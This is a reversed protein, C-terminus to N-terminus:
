ASISLAEEIYGARTCTYAYAFLMASDYSGTALAYRYCIVAEKLYNEDEALSSALENFVSNSALTM